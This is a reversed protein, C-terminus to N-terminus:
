WQSAVPSLTLGKQFSQDVDQSYHYANSEIRAGGVGTRSYDETISSPSLSVSFFTRPPYLMRVHPHWIFSSSEACIAIMSSAWPYAGAALTSSADTIRRLVQETRALGSRM